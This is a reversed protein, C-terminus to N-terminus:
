TSDKDRTAATHRSMIITPEDATHSAAVATIAAHDYASAVEVLDAPAPTRSM